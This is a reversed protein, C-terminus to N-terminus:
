IAGPGVGLQASLIARVTDAQAPTDVALAPASGRAMKIRVGHEMFRLQELSEVQELESPPWKAFADLVDKRYAYLGIHKKIGTKRPNRAFPIAYRSFYLAYGELDTVVKVVAPNEEDGEEGEGYVSAMKVAADQMPGAVAAITPSSMLPEDGQVNIYFDAEVTRAVEAIRDTGTEHAASTLVAEAGFAGCAAVIEKDPTAVLVRGAVGSAVAAEYVWQVMPKGCLDALPKGPFRTSGMRAPIVIACSM